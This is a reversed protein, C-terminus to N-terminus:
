RDANVGTLCTLVSYNSGHDGTPVNAKSDDGQLGLDDGDAVRLPNANGLRDQLSGPQRTLHFQDGAVPDQQNTGDVSRTGDPRLGEAGHSRLLIIM